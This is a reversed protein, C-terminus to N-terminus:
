IYQEAVVSSITSISHTVLHCSMYDTPNHKGPRYKVNYAYSHLRMLWREIRAALKSKPKNLISELPKHDTILTFPRGFLYLHFYKVAWEMELTERKIQSYRQKVDSLSRSAYAVVKSVDNAKDKQVLMAGLDFPSGDVIVETYNNFDYYNM